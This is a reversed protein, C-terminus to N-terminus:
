NSIARLRVAERGEAEPRKPAAAGSSECRAALCATFYACVLSVFAAEAPLFYSFHLHPASTRALGRALFGLPGGMLLAALYSAGAFNLARRPMRKEHWAAAIGVYLPVLCVLFQPWAVPSLMTIVVLWLAFGFGHRDDALAGAAVFAAAAAALEIAFAAVSAWGWDGGVLRVLAGLNLNAPHKLLGVPVGSSHTLLAGAAVRAFGAVPAFGACALVAACGVLSAGIFYGCARWDRRAILFMGLPYARLLAAAALIAGAACHRERRIAALALVFILLLVIESQAFWFNIAVPPYLLM